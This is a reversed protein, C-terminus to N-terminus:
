IAVRAAMFHPSYNVGGTPSLVTIAVGSDQLVLMEIYDNVALEVLSSLTMADADGAANIRLAFVHESPLGRNKAFELTRTGVDGGPTPRNWFVNGCVQYKGAIRATLRTPTLPTFMSPVATNFVAPNTYSIATLTNNPISQASTRRMRTAPGGVDPAGQIGAEGADGTPGSPGQVGTPGTSGPMGTPGTPGSLSLGTPGTPGTPGTTDM